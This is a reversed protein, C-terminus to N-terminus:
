RIVRTLEDITTIGAAAKALGDQWMTTMGARTAARTLEGHGVRQQTLKQLEDDMVMLQYVGTRGRYGHTCRTCGRRRYLTIGSDIQEASFGLFDLDARSPSYPERCETCLCRVLRQALVGSVASATVFPELGLDNLRNLAAPADNAHMTSLVFHGTLAAELAIKATELDRIEGVMLVDPDSRLIARLGSAFTLGAKKNVQVQYIYDLKYEVPDEITIINIGPQRLDSLAAYVTTSKGSGTPGTVLLAGTPRYIAQELAMQMTNSLGVETLTPAKRDKELLRMIVGEGEVTPLVAVRIDILRRTSKPRLTMRGDQPVRHEAIDLKALVKIRTIVAPALRKPICEVERLIGDVRIRAVLADGQPLFHVDSAGESVAQLVISNVLQIPPAESIGDEADLDTEDEDPEPVGDQLVASRATEEVGRALRRLEFEIDEIPAVALEVPHRSVLRLEDILALNGPDAVAVRVQGNAIRFPIAKVRNLVHHPISEAAAKDVGIQYLDILPLEYLEALARPGQPAEQGALRLVPQPAPIANEAADPMPATTTM